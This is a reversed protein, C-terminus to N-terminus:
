DEEAANKAKHCRECTAKESQAPGVSALATQDNCRGGGCFLAADKAPKKRIHIAKPM